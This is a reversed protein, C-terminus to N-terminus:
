VGDMGSAYLRTCRYPYRLCMGAIDTKQGDADDRFYVAVMPWTQHLPCALGVGFEDYRMCCVESGAEQQVPRHASSTAHMYVMFFMCLM